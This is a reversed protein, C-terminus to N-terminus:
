ERPSIYDLPRIAVTNHIITCPKGDARVYRMEFTPTSRGRRDLEDRIVALQSEPLDFELVLDSNGPRIFDLLLRRTAVRHGGFHKLCALAPIPDALCAQFGGFMNGRANRSIPTLPLLIRVHRWDKSIAIVRIRMLWFPPYWKLRRADSLFRLRSREKM